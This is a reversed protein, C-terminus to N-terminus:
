ATPATAGLNLEVGHTDTREGYAYCMTGNLEDGRASADREPEVKAGWLEVYVVADKVFVGGKAANSGVAINADTFIPMGMYNGVSYKKAFEEPFGAGGYVQVGSTTVKGEVQIDVLDNYTYPHIVVCPTDSSLETSNGAILARAAALYGPTCTTGSGSGLSTAFGDMMETGDVDRAKILANSIVKSAMKVVNDSRTLKVIDTLLVQVGIETPTVTLLSDALQQAQAMDVGETLAYASVAGIKPETYSRAGKPVSAKDFCNPFVGNDQTTYIVNANITNVMQDLQTTSNWGAM